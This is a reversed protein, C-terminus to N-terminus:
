YISTGEMANESYTTFNVMVDDFRSIFIYSFIPINIVRQNEHVTYVSQSFGVPGTHCSKRMKLLSAEVVQKTRVKLM